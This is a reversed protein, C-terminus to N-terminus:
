AAAAARTAGDVSALGVCVSGYYRIRTYVYVYKETLLACLVCGCLANTTTATNYQQRGPLRALSVRFSPVPRRLPRLSDLQTRAQDKECCWTLLNCKYRTARALFEEFGKTIAKVVGFVLM